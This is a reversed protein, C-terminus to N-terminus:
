VQRDVTLCQSVRGARRTNCGLLGRFQLSMMPLVHPMSMNEQPASDIFANNLLETFGAKTRKPMTESLFM